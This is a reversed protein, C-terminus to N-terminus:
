LELAKEILYAASVMMKCLASTTGNLSVRLGDAEMVIVIHPLHCLRDNLGSLYETQEKKDFAM